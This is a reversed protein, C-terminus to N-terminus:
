KFQYDWGFNVEAKNEGPGLTITQAMTGGTAYPYTWIGPQLVTFNPEAQPDISVCYTGAKVGTFMYSLDTGITMVEDKVGVLSTAACDGERLKVVVSEIPLEHTELTGNAHYPGMPSDHEICGVPASTLSPEGDLPTVCDDLWVWGSISGTMTETKVPWEFTTSKGNVTIDYTGDPLEVFNLPLAFRFSLGVRDPPCSETTSALVTVDIQFGDIRSDVQTIQSCLDPWLGSAIIEVPIPSGVGVQVEVREVNLPTDSTVPIAEVVLTPQEGSSSAIAFPSCASLLLAFIFVFLSLSRANM